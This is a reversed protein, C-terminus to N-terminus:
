EAKGVLTPEKSPGFSVNWESDCQLESGSFKLRLTIIFPTECFCLKAAFTDDDTWAGSAAVPQPQLLGWAARGKCWADRGCLIRHEAGDIRLVLTAEGNEGTEMAISELKRPNAPFVYKKGAVKAPSGGGQQPRLSLGKLTRVLKKEAGEDAPLASPKMGPLLDDWVLNLVAQMDKLGSTIAIVADQEPMVICYQGFAGDGRYAGHRCRWFQYGL